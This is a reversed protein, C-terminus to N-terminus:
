HSRSMSELVGAVAVIGSVLWEGELKGCDGDVNDNDCSDNEDVAAGSNSLKEQPESEDGLGAGANTPVDSPYKKIKL